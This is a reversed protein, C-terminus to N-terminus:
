ALPKLVHIKFHDYSQRCALGTINSINLTFGSVDEKLVFITRKLFGGEVKGLIANYFPAVKDLFKLILKKIFTGM